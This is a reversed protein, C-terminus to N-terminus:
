RINNIQNNAYSFNIDYSILKDNIQTKLQITKTDIVIPKYEGNNNTLWIYDSQILEKFFQNYSEKYYGSSLTFSEIASSSLVKKTHKRNSYSGNSIISKDYYEKSANYSTKTAGFFTLGQLVGFKNIFEIDVPKFTEVHGDEIYLVEVGADTDVYIKKTKALNDSCLLNDLCPSGELTGGTNYVRSEYGDARYDLFSIYRVLTQTTTGEVVDDTLLINGQSDVFTITNVLSTNIPIFPTKDNYGTLYNGNILIAKPLNPNVGEDFYGYGYFGDLQVIGQSTPQSDNIVTKLDYDVWVTKDSTSFTEPEFVDRVFESIEIQVSGNIALTKLTYTPTVPRNTTKTGTYIYLDLLVSDLGQDTFKVFYPSLCNIKM